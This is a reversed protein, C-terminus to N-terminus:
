ADRPTDHDALISRLADAMALAAEYEADASDGDVADEWDSLVTRVAETGM